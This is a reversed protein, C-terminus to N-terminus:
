LAGGVPTVGREGDMPFNFSCCAGYLGRALADFDRAADEAKRRYPGRYTGGDKSVRGQYRNKLPHFVVGRFGSANETTARNAANESRTVLRLNSRRNDMTDGNAHDVIEGAGAGMILRHMYVTSGKVRAVAYGGGTGGRRWRYQKIIHADQADVVAVRDGVPIQYGPRRGSSTPAPVGHNFKRPFASLKM